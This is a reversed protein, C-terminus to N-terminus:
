KANSYPGLFREGDFHILHSPSDAVWVETEWAIEALYKTMVTRTPFASVYVIGPIASAFLGALERHRKADVPGHSTVCEVLLLWGRAGDYLVVDPMKGHNDVEIGLSALLSKDFYGWKEGTDGAYVLKAGPAFRPGFHEVVDRILESHEGPSLRIEMDASIQVPIMAQARHNAYRSALAPLLALFTHIRSEWEGTGYSRIVELAEPSLQYSAKPSNTPRDCRDANYLAIGAQVLQHMSFRRFTERTNPAYKAGYFNRAFDMIPTIGISANGAEHWSMEPKLGALALLCYATRLNQQGKPLGLAKLIDLAENVIRPHM